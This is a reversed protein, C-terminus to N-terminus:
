LIGRAANEVAELALKQVEDPASAGLAIGAAHFSDRSEAALKIKAGAAAKARAAAIAADASALLDNRAAALVRRAVDAQAQASAKAIDAPAAKVAFDATSEIRERVPGANESPLHLAALRENAAQKVRAIADAAAHEAAHHDATGPLPAASTEAAAQTALKAADPARSAIEKQVSNWAAEWALDPTVASVGALLLMTLGVNLIDGILGSPLRRAELRKRAEKFPTQLRAATIATEWFGGGDDFSVFGLFFALAAALGLLALDVFPHFFVYYLLYDGHAAATLLGWSFLAFVVGFRVGPEDRPVPGILAVAAVAFFALFLLWM